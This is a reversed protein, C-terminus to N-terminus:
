VRAATRTTFSAHPAASAHRSLSHSSQVFSTRRDTAPMNPHGPVPNEHDVCAQLRLRGTRRSRADGSGTCTVMAHPMPPDMTGAPLVIRGRLSQERIGGGLTLQAGTVHRPTQLRHRSVLLRRPDALPRPAALLIARHPPRRRRRLLTCSALLESTFPPRRIGLLLPVTPRLYGRLAEVAARRRECADNTQQRHVPYRPTASPSLRHCRCFCIMGAVGPRRRLRASLRSSGFQSSVCPPGPCPAYASPLPLYPDPPRPLTNGPAHLPGPDPFRLTRAHLPGPLRM